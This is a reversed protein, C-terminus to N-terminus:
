DVCRRFEMQLYMECNSYFLKANKCYSHNKDLGATTDCLYFLIVGIRESIMDFTISVLTYYAIGVIWLYFFELWIVVFKKKFM